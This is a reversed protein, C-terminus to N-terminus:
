DEIEYIIKSYNKKLYIFCPIIGIVFLTFLGIYMYISAFPFLVTLVIFTTGLVIWIGFNILLGILVSASNKVAETESNWKLKPHKLAIILGVFSNLISYTFPIFYSFLIEWVNDHYFCVAITSAILTAPLTLIWSFLIKSWMSKKYDIPLSKSIWFTKGEINIAGTIPNTLGVILASCIIFMPIFLLRMMPQAEASASNIANSFTVLYITSGLVCM